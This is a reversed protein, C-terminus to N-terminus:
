STTDTGVLVEDASGLRRLSTAGGSELEALRDALRVGSVPHRLAADLDILPRLVFARDLLGPHPVALGPETIRQGAYLLLDVDIVRPGMRFTPTRGTAREARQLATLLEPASLSTTARVAMNWFVPQEVHGFPETEYVDSVADIHVTARLEALVARLHRARDGLNTGLGLYM